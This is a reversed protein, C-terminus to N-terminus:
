GAAAAFSYLGLVSRAISWSCCCATCSYPRANAATPWCGFSHAAGYCPICSCALCQARLGHVAATRGATLWCGISHAAGMVQVLEGESVFMSGDGNAASLLM